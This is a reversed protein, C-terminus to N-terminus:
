SPLGPMSRHGEPALLPETEDGDLGTFKPVRTTVISIGLSPAVPSAHHRHRSGSVPQRYDREMASRRAARRLIGVTGVVRGTADLFPEVTVSYPQGQSEVETQLSMGAVSDSCDISQLVGPLLSDHRHGVLEGILDESAAGLEPWLSGFAHTIRLASDTRWAAVPLGRFFPDSDDEATTQGPKRSENVERAVVYYLFSGDRNKSRVVRFDGPRRGKTTLLGAQFRMGAAHGRRWDTFAEAVGDREEAPFFDNLSLGRFCGSTYGVAKLFARNHHLITLSEDCIVIMDSAIRLLQGGWRGDLDRRLLGAMANKWRVLRREPEPTADRPDSSSPFAANM